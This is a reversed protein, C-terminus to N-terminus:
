SSGHAQLHIQPKICMARRQVRACFASGLGGACAALAPPDGRQLAHAAHGGAAAHDSSSPRRRCAPTSHLPGVAAAIRRCPRCPLRCPLRSADDAPQDNRAAAGLGSVRLLFSRAATGLGSARHPAACLLWGAAAAAAASDRGGAHAGGVRAPHRQGRLRGASLSRLMASPGNLWAPLASSPKCANEGERPREFAQAQFDRECRVQPAGHCRAIPAAVAGGAGSLRRGAPRRLASM